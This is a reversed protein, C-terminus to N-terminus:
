DSIMKSFHNHFLIAATGSTVYQLYHTQGERAIHETQNKEAEVFGIVQDLDNLDWRFTLMTERDRYFNPWTELHGMDPKLLLGGTLFVEFDKLTIEGLGFPSLVAHSKRLESFYAGRRLKKSQVYEPLLSRIQRRQYSVTERKYYTGMRCSVSIRRNETTRLKSSPYRLFIPLRTYQYFQMLMPGHRSYNALGSNWGLRIKELYKEEQVPAKNEPEEDMVGNAHHYYDTYTRRGYLPEMYASRNRLLQSKFYWKVIPLIEGVLWGASDTSDYWALSNCHTKFQELKELVYSLQGRNPGHFYKSDVILLDCDSCQGNASDFITVAIGNSALTRRHLVLPYVLGRANPARFGDSLIHVKKLTM